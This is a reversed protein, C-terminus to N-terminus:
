IKIINNSKLNANYFYEIKNQKRIKIEEELGDIYVNKRKNELISIIHEEYFYKIIFLLMAILIFSIFSLIIIKWLVLDTSSKIILCIGISLFLSVFLVIFPYYVLPSISKVNKIDEYSSFFYKFQNEEMKNGIAYEGLDYKEKLIIKTDYMYKFMLFLYMLFVFGVFFIGVAEYTSIDGIEKLPLTISLMIIFSIFFILPIFLIKM